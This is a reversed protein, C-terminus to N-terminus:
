FSIFTYKIHRLNLLYQAISARLPLIHFSRQNADLFVMLDAVLELSSRVVGMRQWNYTVTQYVIVM